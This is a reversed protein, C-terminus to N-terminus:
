KKGLWSARFTRQADTLTKGADEFPVVEVQPNEVATLTKTHTKGRQQYTIEASEGPKLESELAQLQNANTLPQGNISIITDGRDLGAEYVPTGKRTNDSVTTGDTTYALTPFGFTAKGPHQKRLMYGAQALLDAYDPLKSDRVYSAFFDRAFQADNTYEALAQELGAVAYPIFTKGHKEWLYKMFGDLSKDHQRLTLDLNLGIMAGWTYYSIFTNSFNRPDYASARDVFPALMSMEIPSFIHRGPSNFVTNLSRGLARAYAADDTIEARRIILPTYYSTFGEAFWLDPSMNAAEFDFPELAAPRIREVNWTHFYEHSVTGLLGLANSALSSSSTLITSNRHEMGDGSAWPLYAAIFTYVGNDFAPPGDFVANQQEVVRRVMDAYEDVEKQTGLHHIALRIQYTEKSGPEQPITWSRMDYDSLSTPSDMFYHLDPATFTMPDETPYLQTAAKWGSAAPPDFRVTIPWNHFDRAFMFTAPMNMHAHSADIQSYTGDARDAYLTYTVTITGDHGVIDWQHPNPRSIDLANGKGDVARVNYVNKAFEHLSYRGPSTRSMRVAVPGDPVGDLTMSIEAEHHVVNPFTVHYSVQAFAINCFLVLNCFLLLCWPLPFMRRVLLRNIM